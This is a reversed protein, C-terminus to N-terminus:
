NQTKEDGVGLTLSNKKLYYNKCHENDHHRHFSNLFPLDDSKQLSQLAIHQANATTVKSPYGSSIDVM